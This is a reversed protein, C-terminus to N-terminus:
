SGFCDDNYFSSANLTVTIRVGSDCRLERPLYEWPTGTGLVFLIGTLTARDNMRPRGGKSSPAHIPLQAAILSWLEDPLLAKAMADIRGLVSKGDQRPAKRVVPQIRLRFCREYKLSRKRGTAFSQVQKGIAVSM